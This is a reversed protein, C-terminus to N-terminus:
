AEHWPRNTMFSGAKAYGCSIVPSLQHPFMLTCSLHAKAFRGLSHFMTTSDTVIERQDCESRNLLIQQCSFRLPRIFVSREALTFRQLNGLFMELSVAKGVLCHGCVDIQILRSVNSRLQDDMGYESDYEEVM